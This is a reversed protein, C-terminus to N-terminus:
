IQHTKFNNFSILFQQLLSEWGISKGESCQPRPNEDRTPQEWEYLKLDTPIQFGYIHLWILVLGCNWELQFQMKINVIIIILPFKIEVTFYVHFTYSTYTNIM